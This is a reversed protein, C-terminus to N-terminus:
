KTYANGLAQVILGRPIGWVSALIDVLTDDVKSSPTMDAWERLRAIIFEEGHKILEPTILRKIVFLVFAELIPGM